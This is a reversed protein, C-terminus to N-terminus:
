GGHGAGTVIVDTLVAGPPIRAGEWAVVRELRAGRGVTVGSGLAVWGKLRCGQTLRVGKGMFFPTDSFRGALAGQLLEGHLALYDAPTGMDCWFAGRVVVGKVRGGRCIFARYCDIIDGKDAEGMAELVSPDLVHIGTFAYRRTSPREPDRGAFGRVLGRDDVMVAAFRPYHHLVMTVQNGQELHTKFIADLDITHFIDGNTVLVPQDGFLPAATKLGGFTGLVEEELQLHIGPTGAFLDLFQGRLHHANVVVKGFGAASLKELTWSILPRDLVPFLPKPRLDTYPKLRTGFGAALIMAQRITM